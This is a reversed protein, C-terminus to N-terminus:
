LINLTVRLLKLLSFLDQCIQQDLVSTKKKNSTYKASTQLSWFISFIDKNLDYHKYIQLLVVAPNM